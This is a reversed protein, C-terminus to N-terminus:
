ISVLVFTPTYAGLRPSNLVIIKANQYVCKRTLRELIVYQLQFRLFLHVVINLNKLLEVLLLLIGWFRVTMFCLKLYIEIAKM